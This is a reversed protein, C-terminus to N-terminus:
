FKAIDKIAKAATLEICLAATSLIFRAEEKQEKNLLFVAKKLNVQVQIMTNKITEFSAINQKVSSPSNFSGRTIKIGNILDINAKQISTLANILNKIKVGLANSSREQVFKTVENIASNWRNVEDTVLAEKYLNNKGFASTNSSTLVKIVDDKTAGHTLQTITILFIIIFNRKM